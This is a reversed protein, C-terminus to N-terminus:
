VREEDLSYLPDREEAHCRRTFIPLISLQIFTFRGREALPGSVSSGAHEARQCADASLSPQTFDTTSPLPTPM